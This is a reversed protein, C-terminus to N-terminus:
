LVQAGKHDPETQPSEKQSSRECPIKRLDNQMHDNPPSWPPINAKMAALYARFIIPPSM